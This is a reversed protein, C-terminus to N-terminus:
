KLTKEFLKFIRRYEDTWSEARTFSHDEMPYVALEWNEKGLEILRQVLRVSGQFHVNMDVMGHCILLHGKLGEAFYIPSSQKYAEPDDLPNNLIDASYWNSYHAWDIVPRLAAGSTFHDPKTFMGMLALFGGYSGGYIGVKKVQFKKKLYDAAQVIDDLDKGGMHRYIRTRFDAGYGASGSYDVDMVYYGARQLYNHFMYERYYESWGYHANQLYGAGHIFIVAPRSPLPNEPLFLRSYIDVGDATKFSVIEPQTWNHAKFRETRFDKLLGPEQSGKQLYLQWPIHPQSHLIAIHKFDPSPYANNQGSLLTVPLIKGGSVPVKYLNSKGPHEINASFYFYRNNPSLTVDSVVFKGRTIQRAKPDGMKLTYIQSYGDEESTFYITTNNIWGMNTLTLYGLWRPDHIKYILQPKESQPTIKMIFAEKHNNKRNTFVFTKHDPSPLFRSFWANENPLKIETVKGTVTDARYLNNTFSMLEAAKPRATLTKTYGSGDIYQPILTDTVNGSRKSKTFFLIKYDHSFTFGRIFEKEELMMSIKGAQKKKPSSNITKDDKKAFDKFLKSEEERYYKHVKSTKDNQPSRNGKKTIFYTVQNITDLARDWKYLNKDQTYYIIHKNPGFFPNSIRNSTNTVQFTKGTNTYYIYINGKVIYLIMGWQPQNSDTRGFTDYFNLPLSSFDQRDIKKIQGSSLTYQFIDERGYEDLSYFFSKSDPAWVLTMPWKGTFDTGKMLEPIGPLTSNTSFGPICLTIFLIMILFINKKM